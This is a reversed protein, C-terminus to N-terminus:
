ITVPNWLLLLQSKIDNCAEVTVITAEGIDNCSEVTVITPEKYTVPNWLLLLQRKIDNSDNCYEM